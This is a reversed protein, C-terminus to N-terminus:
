FKLNTNTQTITVTKTITTKNHNFNKRGFFDLFENRFRKNSFYYLLCNLGHYSFSICNSFVIFFYGVDSVILENFYFSAFACPLTMGIFLFTMIMITVNISQMKHSSSKINSTGVSDLNPTTKSTRKKRYLFIIFALNTIFLTVFPIVSYMM